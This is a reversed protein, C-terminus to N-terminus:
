LTTIVVGSSASIKLTAAKRATNKARRRYYLNITKPMLKKAELWCREEEVWLKPNTTDSLVFM